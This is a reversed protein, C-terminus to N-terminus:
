VDARGKGFNRCLHNRASLAPCSPTATVETSTIEPYGTSIGSSNNAILTTTGGIM